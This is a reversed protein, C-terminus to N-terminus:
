SKRPNIRNRLEELAEKAIVYASPFASEADEGPRWFRRRAMRMSSDFPPIANFVEVLYPGNYVPEIDGLIIDWSIWSDRVAGRDPASVHVYYLQNKRVLRALNQKFVKPGQSEMVVQATDITAGCPFSTKLSDIFGVIESVMNPPPTEWSKVPEIALLVKKKAAHEALEEFILRAAEYRPKMWEQLDDSWIAEGNDTVPFIGYPYLFPGSM